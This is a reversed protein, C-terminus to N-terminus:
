PIWVIVGRYGAVAWASLFDRLSARRDPGDAPDYFVVENADIAVPVVFHWKLLLGGALVSVDMMVIFPADKSLSAIAAAEDHIPLLQAGFGLAQAASVLDHVTCGLATTGCHQAITTEDHAVGLAAFLM